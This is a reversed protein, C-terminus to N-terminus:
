KDLTAIDQIKVVPNLKSSQNLQDDLFQLLKDIDNFLQIGKKRADYIVRNSVDPAYGIVKKGTTTITSMIQGIVGTKRGSRVQILIDLSNLVVDLERTSGNLNDVELNVGKVLGPFRAEIANALQAVYKDNSVFTRAAAVGAAEGVAEEAVVTLTRKPGVLSEYIRGALAKGANGASKAFPASAVGGLLNGLVRSDQSTLERGNYINSALTGLSKSFQFGTAAESVLFLGVGIGIAVPASLSFAGIAAAAALGFVAGEALGIGFQLTDFAGTPDIRNVPNNRVYSYRNLSQPDGPDPTIADPNLFRGLAPDYFRAGYDYIELDGVSRQGNFGFTPLGSTVVHADGFPLYLARSLVQGSADTQLTTSGLQDSHFYRLRSPTGTTQAVAPGCLASWFVAVTASARAM